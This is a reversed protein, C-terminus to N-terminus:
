YLDEVQVGYLKAFEKLQLVDLQTECSEIRSIRSQHTNLRKAVDGQTWGKDLRLKVLREVIRKYQSDRLVVSM